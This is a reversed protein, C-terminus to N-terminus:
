SNELIVEAIQSALLSAAYKAEALTNACSGIEFLLSGPAYQQNFSANRLSIARAFSDYSCVLSNQLKLAVNLHDQWDPHDAGGSDTGVLIMVQACDTGDINCLTKVMEGNDRIIADRHVDFVYKISPYKELYEKTSKLSKNYSANYDEADHQTQCQITPVGASNLIDCMVRGVSIMNKEPDTSRFSASKSYSTVENEAFSETAHTHIILVLPENQDISTKLSKPYESNFSSDINYSSSSDCPNVSLETVGFDQSIIKCECEESQQQSSPADISPLLVVNEDKKQIGTNEIGSEQAPTIEQLGTASKALVEPSLFLSLKAASGCVIILAGVCCLATRYLKSVSSRSKFVSMKNEKGHLNVIQM